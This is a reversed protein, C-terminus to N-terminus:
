SRLVVQLDSALESFEAEELATILTKWNVPKRHEGDIWEAFMAQCSPITQHHDRNIREIDHQDFLLRVAVREWKGAVIKIVKVVKGSGEIRDIQDM